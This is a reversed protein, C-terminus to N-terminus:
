YSHSKGTTPKISCDGGSVPQNTLYIHEVKTKTSGPSWALLVAIHYKGMAM